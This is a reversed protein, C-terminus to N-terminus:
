PKPPSAAPRLPPLKFQLINVIKKVRKMCMIFKILAYCMLQEHKLKRGSESQASLTPEKVFAANKRKYLFSHNKAYESMNINPM